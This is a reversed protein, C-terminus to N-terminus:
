GLYEIVKAIQMGSILVFVVALAAFVIAIIKWKMSYVNMEDYNKQVTIKKNESLLEYLEEVSEKNIKGLKYYPLYFDPNLLSNKKNGKKFFKVGKKDFIAYKVDSFELVKDKKIFKTKLVLRTSTFSGTFLTYSRLFVFGVVLWFVSLVIIFPLNVIDAYGETNISYVIRSAMSVLCYLMLSLIFIQRPISTYTYSIESNKRLTTINQESM